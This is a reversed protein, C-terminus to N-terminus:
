EAAGPWVYTPMEGPTIITTPGYSDAAPHSYIPQGSPTIVTTPGNPTQSPYSYYPRGVPPIVTTITKQGAPVPVVLTEKTEAFTMKTFIFAGIFMLMAVVFVWYLFNSHDQPQRVM